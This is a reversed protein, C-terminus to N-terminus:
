VISVNNTENNAVSPSLDLLNQISVGCHNLMSLFLVSMNMSNDSYYRHANEDNGGINVSKFVDWMSALVLQLLATNLANPVGEAGDNANEFIGNSAVCDNMLILNQLCEYGLARVGFDDNARIAELMVALRSFTDVLLESMSLEGRHRALVFQKYDGLTIM